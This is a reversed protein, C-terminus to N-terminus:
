AVRVWKSGDGAAVQVTYLPVSNNFPSVGSVPATAALEKQFDVLANAGTVSQPAPIKTYPPVNALVPPGTQVLNFSLGDASLEGMAGAPPAPPVANPDGVIGTPGALHGGSYANLWNQFTGTLYDQIQTQVADYAAQAAEKAIWDKLQQVSPWTLPPAAGAPLPAPAVQTLGSTPTAFIVAM